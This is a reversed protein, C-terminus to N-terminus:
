QLVFVDHVEDLHECGLVVDEEDQLKDGSALQEIANHLSPPQTLVFRQLKKLLKNGPHVLAMLHSNAMTIQFRLVQEEVVIAVQLDRVKTERRHDGVRALALSARRHQVGGTSCRVIDGRLNQGVLTVVSASRVDPGTSDNQEHQHSAIQGEVLRGPRSQKLLDHLCVKRVGLPKGLVALREKRVDKNGIRRAAVGDRLDDLVGPEAGVEVSLNKARM